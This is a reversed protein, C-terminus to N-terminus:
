RANVVLTKLFHEYVEPELDPRKAIVYFVAPNRDSVRIDTVIHRENRWRPQNPFNPVNPKKEIEYRIAPRGSVTLSTRSLINVTSLTLFNNATFYRIFIQSKELSTNGPLAHDYLSLAELAPIAEAQWAQPIEASFTFPSASNPIDSANLRISEAQSSRLPAPTDSQGPTFFQRVAVVSFALAAALLIGISVIIRTSM